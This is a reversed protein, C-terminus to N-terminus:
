YSSRSSKISSRAFVQGHFRINKVSYLYMRWTYWKIDIDQLWFKWHFDSEVSQDRCSRWVNVLIRQIEYKKNRFSICIFAKAMVSIKQILNFSIYPLVIGPMCSHVSFTLNKGKLKFCWLVQLFLPSDGYNSFGISLMTSKLYKCALPKLHTRNKAVRNVIAQWAGRDMPNEPLFVPIRPWKRRWSIKGVWPDFRCRKCRRFQCTSEKGRLWGPSRAWSPGPACSPTHQTLATTPVSDKRWVERNKLTAGSVGVDIDRPLSIM